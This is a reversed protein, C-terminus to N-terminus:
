HNVPRQGFCTPLSLVELHCTMSLCPSVTLLIMNHETRSISDVKCRMGLQGRRRKYGLLRCCVKCTARAHQCVRASVYQTRNGSLNSGFRMASEELLRQAVGRPSLGCRWVNGARHKRALNARNRAGRGRHKNQNRLCSSHGVWPHFSNRTTM